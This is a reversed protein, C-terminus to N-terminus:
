FRFVSFQCSFSFNTDCDDADAGEAAVMGANIVFQCFFASGFEAANEIGLGDTSGCHRAFKRSL